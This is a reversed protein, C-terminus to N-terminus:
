RFLSTVPSRTLARQLITNSSHASRQKYTPLVEAPRYCHLMPQNTFIEEDLKVAEVQTGIFKVINKTNAPPVTTQNILAANKRSYVLHFTKSSLSSCKSPPFFREIAM